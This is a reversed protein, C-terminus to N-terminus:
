YVISIYLRIYLLLAYNTFGYMCNMCVHKKLLVILIFLLRLNEATDEMYM